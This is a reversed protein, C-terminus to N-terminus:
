ALIKFINESKEVVLIWDSLTSAESNILDLFSAQDLGEDKKLSFLGNFFLRIQRIWKKKASFIIETAAQSKLVHKIM